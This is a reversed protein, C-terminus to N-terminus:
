FMNTIVWTNDSKPSDVKDTIDNEIKNEETNVEKKDDETNIEEKDHETNIEQKDHETNVEEKDLEVNLEQQSDDSKDKDVSVM